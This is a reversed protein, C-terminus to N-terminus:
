DVKCRALFDDISELQPRNHKTLLLRTGYPGTDLAVSDLMELMISFGMGLSVATSFGKQLTARALFNRDLGPGSDEILVKVQDADVFVGLRGGSCHKVVNTAAESVCVVLEHLRDEDDIVPGAVTEALSRAAPVSAPSNLMVWHPTALNELRRSMEANDILELRGGTVAKLVDAVFSTRRREELGRIREVELQKEVRARRREERCRAEHLYKQRLLAQVRAVLEVRNVPKAMLDDAGIEYSKVRSDLDSASTVMVVPILQLQPDNKIRRCLQFGDLGPMRVDLLILDPLLVELQALAMEASQAAIVGFGEEGLMAAVCQRGIREDDIIMITAKQSPSKAQRRPASQLVTM